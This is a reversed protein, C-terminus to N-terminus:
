GSRRRPARCGPVPRPRPPGSRRRAAPRGPGAHGRREGRDRLVEPDCVFLTASYVATTRASPRAPSSPARSTSRSRSEFSITSCTWPRQRTRVGLELREVGLDARSEGPERRQVRRGRGAPGSGAASASHLSAISRARAPPGAATRGGDRSAQRAIVPRGCGSSRPRSRAPRPSGSRASTPDRARRQVTMTAVARSRPASRPRSPGRRAATRAPSPREREDRREDAAQPETKRQRRRGVPREGARQEDAAPALEGAVAPSRGAAAVASASPSARAPEVPHGLRRRRPRDPRGVEDIAPRYRRPPRSPRRCRAPRRRELPEIPGPERRDDVELAPAAAVEAGARCANPAISSGISRTSRGGPLEGELIGALAVDPAAVPPRREASAAPEPSGADAPRAALTAASRRRPPRAAGRRSRRGRGARPARRWRCCRRVRTPRVPRRLIRRGALRDSPRAGPRDGSGARPFDSSRLAPYRTVGTRRSALVLAM